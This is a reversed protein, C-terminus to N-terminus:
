YIQPALYPRPAPSRSIIELAGCGGDIGDRLVPSGWLLDAFPRRVQESEWEPRRWVFQEGSIEHAVELMTVGTLVPRFAERDTVYLQSGCVPEGEHKQFTPVFWAPRFAAGPLSRSNLATAFSERLWPAGVLEFPRTTGRGESMTTGEFLATGPYVLATDVTPLNPSPMVWPLGTDEMYMERSWGEMAIVEVPASALGDASDRASCERALEGITLGHRIPISSRGVFSEFGPALGPGEVVAGSLPNPRDLVYFPIGLRAASRMCDVVTWAYTYFRTGVDQIDAVLADLNLAEIAEDLKDDTLGYTDLVPLGTQPDRDASEAHGAQATGRLGHEPGLIAAVKGHERHLAVASLELNALIATYNTILGWRQGPVLGPNELLREAGIKVPM